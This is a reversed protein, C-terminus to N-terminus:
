NSAWQHFLGKNMYRETIKTAVSRPLDLFMVQAVGQEAKIVKCKATVNVGEFAISVEIKDGVKWNNENIITAGDKHLRLIKVSSELGKDNTVDYGYGMNNNLIYEIEPENSNMTMLDDLDNEYIFEKGFILGNNTENGLSHSTFDGDRLIIQGAMILNDLVDQQNLTLNGKDIHIQSGKALLLDGKHATIAVDGDISHIRGFLSIGDSGYLNTNGKKNTINGYINLVGNQTNAIDILGGATIADYTQHKAIDIGNKAKVNLEGDEVPNGTKGDIGNIIKGNLAVKGQSTIDIIAHTVQLTSVNAESTAGGEVSYKGDISTNIIDGVVLPKDTKNNIEIAQPGTSVTTVGKVSCKGAVIKVGNDTKLEPLDYVYIQGDKYIAKINGKVVGDNLNPSLQNGRLNLLNKEGTTSDVILNEEKLMDDTITIGRLPYGTLINSGSKIDVEDATINLGDAAFIRDGGNLTFKADNEDNHAEIDIQGNMAYMNLRNTDIHDSQITINGSENAINLTSTNIDGNITIDPAVTPNPIDFTDALPHNNDYYNNITTGAIKTNTAVFHVGTTPLSDFSPRENQKWISSSGYFYENAKQGSIAQRKNAFEAQSKGNIILSSNATETNINIDNFVLSRTSYNDIQLGSKAIDFVGNGTINANTLGHVNIEAGNPNIRIDNFVLSYDEGSYSYEDAPTEWIANYEATLKAREDRLDELLATGNAKIYQISKIQNAIDEIKSNLDLMNKCSQAAGEGTPNLAALYTIGDKGIYKAFGHPTISLRNKVDNYGKVINNKQANSFGYDSANLFEAMTLNPNNNLATTYDQMLTNYEAQTIKSTYGPDTNTQRVCWMDKQMKLDFASIGAYIGSNGTKSELLVAGNEIFATLENLTAEADAKQQNLKAVLTNYNAITNEYENITGNVNELDIDIEALKQEKLKAGDVFKGDNLVYDGDHFGKLTTKDITGDRNIKMYKTNSLAATINGDNNLSYNSQLDYKSSQGSDTIIGWGSKTEWYIVSNTEGIGNSYNIDIDKGSTIDANAKNDLKNNITRTLKGDEATTAIAARSVAQAFQTLTNTSSNMFNIDMLNGAQLTGSNELTNNITLDLYSKAVPEGGINVVDSVVRSVLTNPSEFDIELENNALIISKDDITIKNNNTVNLNSTGKAVSVFGDAESEIKQKFYSGAIAELVANHTAELTSNQINIESTNTINNTVSISGVAVFGGTDGTYSIDKLDKATVSSYARLKLDKAKINSNKINIKATSSYSNNAKDGVYSIFLGGGANSANDEVASTDQTLINFDSQSNIDANEVNTVTSTNFTSTASTDSVNIFGGSGDTTKVQYTNISKNNIFFRNKGQKDDTKLDILNLISKGKLTNSMGTDAINILGGTGSTKDLKANRITDINININNDKVNFNGGINAITDAEMDSDVRIRSGAVLLGLNFAKLDAETTANHTANIHSPTVITNNGDIDLTMKSKDTAEAAVAYVGAVTVKTGNADAKAKSNLYQDINLKNSTHDKVKLVTASTANTKANAFTGTYIGALQVSVDHTRGYASVDKQNNGRAAIINTTGTNKLTLGDLSDIGSKFYANMFAGSDNYEAVSIAKVSVINSRATVSMNDYDTIIDLSNTNITGNVNEIIAESITNATADNKMVSVLSAGAIPVSLKLSQLDTDVTSRITLNNDADINTNGTILSVTKNTDNAEVLDVNVVSGIAGAIHTTDITAHSKSKSNVSVDYAKVTADKIQALTESSNEYIDSGGSVQLGAVEARMNTMKVKSASEAKLAVNGNTSEVKGGRIEAITNNAIQVDRVGVSASGLTGVLTFSNLNLDNTLVDKGDQKALGRIRSKAIINADLVTKLNGNVSSIAGTRLNNSPTTSTSLGQPIMSFATNLYKNVDSIQEAKSYTNTKQGIKIVQVDIPVAALGLSLDVQTNDLANTLESDMNVSGADVQGSTASLIESKVLNNANYLNINLGVTGGLGVLSGMVVSNRAATTDNSKVDLNREVNLTKSKADVYSRTTSNIDNVLANAALGAGQGTVILGFNINNTRRDSNSNVEMSGIEMSETNDVYSTTTNTFDNKIVNVIASAGQGALAAAIANNDFSDIKDKNTNITIVDAKEIKSNKIGAELTTNIDNLLVNVTVGAGQAAASGGVVWNNANIVSNADIDIDKQTDIVADDIYSKVSGIYDNKIAVGVGSFGKAVGAVGASVDLSDVMSQANMAVAADMIKTNKVTSEVTADYTNVIPNVDLVMNSAGGGSVVIHAANIDENANLNINEAYIGKDTTQNDIKAFVKDEVDNIAINANLSGKIAGSGTILIQHNDKKNAADVTLNNIIDLESGNGILASTTSKDKTYLVSLGAAGKLSGSITGAIINKISYDDAIVYLNDAIIASNSIEATVFNEIVKGIGAGAVSINSGGAVDFLMNWNVFDSDQDLAVGDKMQLGDYLGDADKHLLKDRYEKSTVDDSSYKNSDNKTGGMSNVSAASASVDGRAHIQADTIKAEVTKTLKDVNVSGAIVATAEQSAAASVTAGRTYITTEDYAAVNLNNIYDTNRGIGLDGSVYSKVASDILNVNVNAAAMLYSGGTSVAAGALINNVKETSTAAVNIDKARLIDTQQDTVPVLNAGVKYSDGIEATVDNKFVNIVVDGNVGAGSDTMLIDITGAADLNDTNSNAKVEIDKKATITSGMIKAKVTDHIYNIDASGDFAWGTESGTVLSGAVAFDNLDNNADALISLNNINELTSNAVYAAINNKVNNYNVAAGAGVGNSGNGSLYAGGGAINYVDVKNKAKIDVDVNKAYDDTGISSNEIAAVIEPELTNINLSGGVASQFGKNEEDSNVSAGAGISINLLWNKNDANVVLKSNSDAFEIDTDNILSKVFGSQNNYSVAAGAGNKNSKAIAGGLLINKAERIANIGLEKGVSLESDNVSAEVKTDDQTVDVAGAVSLSFQDLIKDIISDDDDDENNNNKKKKLLEKFYNEDDVSVDGDDDKPAESISNDVSKNDEKDQANDINQPVNGADQQKQKVGGSFAAAGEIDVKQNYTAANIALNTAEIESNEITARVNRDISTTNVSAGVAIGSSSQEGADVEEKQQALSGQVIINTIEDKAERPYTIAPDVQQEKEEPTLERQQKWKIEDTKDDRKISGGTTRITAKGANVEINDAVVTHNDKINSIKAITDGSIEQVHISGDVGIKESKGGTIIINMYSQETASDVNINGDEARITSNDIVATAHNTYNDFVFNAGIGAKGGEVTPEYEWDQQGPLKYNLKKILIDILGAGNYGIVSNVANVDVDGNATIDSNNQIAAMTNTNVENYVVAASASATGGVSNTQALNNFFGAMKFKPKLGSYSAIINQEALGSLEFVPAKDDAKPTAPSVSWKGNAESAFRGGVFFSDMGMIKFPFRMGFTLSGVNMPLETTADVTVNEAEIKSKDILANTTNNQESLVLAVSVGLKAEGQTDSTATNTLLDVTNARVTVDGDAKVDSNEITATTNNNTNNHVVAGGLEFMANDGEKGVVPTKGKIKNFINFKFFKGQLEKLKKNMAADFTKPTQVMLDLVSGDPANETKHLSQALVTTDEATTIKSDKILATVNNNSRNLIVGASSASNGTSEPDNKDKEGAVAEMSIEAYSDSLNTAFVSLNDTTVTSNIISAETDTKVTNNLFLLFFGDELKVSFLSDSTFVTSNENTSVTSVDIDGNVANLISDKIIAKSITETGVAYIGVPLIFSLLRNNADLSSSADTSIEINKAANITSNDVNVIASSKAGEFRNYVDSSFYEEFYSDGSFIYELLTPTLFNANESTESSAEARILVSLNPNEADSATAKLANIISTRVNVEAEAKGAVGWLSTVPPVDSDPTLVIDELTNIIFEVDDVPNAADFDKKQTSKAEISVTDGTIESFGIDVTAKALDVRQQRDVDATASIDIENAGIKAQSIDVRVELKKDNDSDFGDRKNAVIKIKGGELSFNEADKINNQVLSDFVQKAQEQTTIKSQNKVGAVIGRNVSNDGIVKVDKGYLEVNEKAMIKGNITITGESNKLLDNYKDAGHEYDSLHYSLDGDYAHKLDNYKSQTPTAMTLSGVNLVGSAGVVIGNPSVFIAHGNYFADGKVTNVIGNINVQNDVLNVFKNYGQDFKLNAVDGNDLTFDKYQRFGTSGSVKAADINYVGNNGQVGTINTQAFVPTINLFLMSYATIFSVIKRFVSPEKFVIEQSKSTQQNKRLIAKQKM